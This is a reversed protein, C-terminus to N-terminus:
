EDDTPHVCRFVLTRPSSFCENFIQEFPLRQAAEQAIKCRFERDFELVAYTNNFFVPKADHLYAAATVGIKRKVRFLVAPWLEIFDDLNNIRRGTKQPQPAIPAVQNTQSSNAARIPSPINSINWLRISYDYSGGTALIDNEPSFAVSTQWGDQKFTHLVDGNNAQWVKTIGNSGGSAILQGDSSFAISTVSARHKSFTRLLLGTEVEWLQVKNYDTGVALVDGNPSYAISNVGSYNEDAIQQVTGHRINWLLVCSYMACAVISGDPAFSVSTVNQGKAMIDQLVEGTLSNWLLVAGDEGGSVVLEETPSFAVSNIKNTHGRFVQILKGDALNWLHITSKTGAVALRKGDTSFALSKAPSSHRLAQVREGTRIDWLIVFHDDSASALVRGDPSFRISTVDRKHGVMKRLLANKSPKITPSVLPTPAVSRGALQELLLSVQQPRQEGKIEMSWLISESVNRSIYPNLSHPPALSAGQLRDLAEPPVEGTVLYYLTAGLAYIDTYTGVPTRKSYQEPPAYGSTGFAATNSLQRTGHVTFQEIQKNLGFDILVVRGDDCVIVNEPKIDRHILGAEHVSELARGVQEIHAIAEVESMVGNKDIIQQLTRGKLFEMILYATENEEFVTLVQVINRHQFRALARAESLFNAKSREYEQQSIGNSLRVTNGDRGCGVPFFEKIAVHRHLRTDAGNYTIGFGGQGAVRGVVFAGGQLKTGHSLTDFSTSGNFM